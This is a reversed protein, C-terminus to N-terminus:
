ATAAEAQEMKAKLRRARARANKTLAWIVPPRGREGTKEVGRRTVLGAGEYRAMNVPSADIAKATNPGDLLSLLVNNMQESM